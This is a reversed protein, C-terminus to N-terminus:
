FVPLHSLIQKVKANQEDYTQIDFPGMSYKRAKVDFAAFASQNRLGLYSQALSQYIWNRDSREYFGKRKIVDECIQVTKQRIITACSHNLIKSRKDKALNAKMDYLFAANVGNYYDQAIYFGREYYWIARELHAVRGTVEFLRKFIAGSLGLTEPDNTEDPRLPRLIDIAKKLARLPSPRKLKYTVLALRQRIFSNNTDLKLSADLLKESLSLDNNNKATEADALLDSISPYNKLAHRLKDIDDTEFKPPKLNKLYTYVPSDPTKKGLVTKIKKKLEQKFRSAESVGIDKGLHEYPEIITHNVDFPYKLDQESIVITSFPRLAHRVGLEYLANPNLTTIDAIVIDAKYLWEYMPIDIVGSHVIDKARYCDIKLAKCVPKIVNAYTKDLDFVKGTSYDTKTGFGIVVFCTKNM